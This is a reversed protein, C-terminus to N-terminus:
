ASLAPNGTKIGAIEVAGPRVLCLEGNHLGVITSCPGAKTKGGDLLYDLDKGFAGAVESAFRAPHLGSLNASTATMAKGFARGLAQAMPHPSIRIGVTRTGGTLYPSLRPRAPFILTLPGPWHQAILPNYVEPISSVLSDLLSLDHILLLVPKHPPRKKIQFLRALATENDPDVALGYYTETPFAVLGGQSLVRAAQMVRDDYSGGEREDRSEDPRKKM